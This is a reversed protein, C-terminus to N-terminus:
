RWYMCIFRYAKGSVTGNRYSQVRDYGSDEDLLTSCKRRVVFM